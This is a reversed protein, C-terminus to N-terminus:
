LMRMLSILGNSSNMTFGNSSEEILKGQLAIELWNEVLSSPLKESELVDRVTDLNLAPYGNTAAPTALILADLLSRAVNWNGSLALSGPLVRLLMQRGLGADPRLRELIRAVELHRRGRRTEVLADFMLDFANIANGGAFYVLCTLTFLDSEPAREDTRPSGSLRIDLRDAAKAIIRSLEPQSRAADELAGWSMELLEELIARKREDRQENGLVERYASWWSKLNGATVAQTLRRAAAHRRDASNLSLLNILQL